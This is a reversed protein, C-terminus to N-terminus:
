VFERLQEMRKLFGDVSEGDPSFAPDFCIEDAGIERTAEVDARIEDLTGSYVFRGEGLPRDTVAVNARVILALQDPDRGAEKAMARVGDMMQRMGEPPVAVPFWGDAKTAVRKLAPPTFAALYIPPHPRQVPKPQIISEAIRFFKGDFKVPDTTWIAKVVDVFEDARRGRARMSAGTAEHEDESWGQGFGVLLRGGSLVDLTTLRRALTVPHYYPMVLVSTGLAIRSTHAVVFTLTELPDLVIKYAEPWSGDPTGAYPTRPNTPYLVRETVWLSVYGLEEARQAVKILSELSAANGMQPLFFGKRM